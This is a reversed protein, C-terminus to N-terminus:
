NVSDVVERSNPGSGMEARLHAAVEARNRLRLKSLIHHVHNKATAHSICLAIAIRKNSMGRGLLHLIQRERATLAEPAAASSRSGAALTSLRQMVMSMVRQSCAWEGRAALHLAEILETSTSNKTVYGSIGAEIWGVISEQKEEVSLAVVAPPEDLARLEELWRRASLASIDLLVLAPKERTAAALADEGCVAGTVSFAGDQLLLRQLGERYFPVDIILLVRLLYTGTHKFRGLNTHGLPHHPLGEARTLRRVIHFHEALRRLARPSRHATVLSEHPPAQVLM